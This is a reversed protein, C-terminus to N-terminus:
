YWFAKIVADGRAAARLYFALLGSHHEFFVNKVDAEDWASFPARFATGARDWFADFRLGDLFAAARAVGTPCLLAFPPQEESPHRVVRGGFVPLEWAGDAGQPRGAATEYFEHVMAFDKNVSEALGAEYEEAHIEWAARMFTTLSSHDDGAESEPVARLHMYFSM